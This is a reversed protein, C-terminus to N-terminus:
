AEQEVRNAADDGAAGHLWGAAGHADLERGEAVGHADDPRAHEREVRASRNRLSV